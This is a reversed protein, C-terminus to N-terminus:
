RRYQIELHHQFNFVWDVMVVLMIELLVMVVPVVLEVAVAALEVQIELLLVLDVLIEKDLLEQMLDVVVLKHDVVIVVVLVV